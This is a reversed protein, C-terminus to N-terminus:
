GNFWFSHSHTLPSYSIRICWILIRRLPEGKPSFHIYKLLRTSIQLYALQHIVAMNQFEM